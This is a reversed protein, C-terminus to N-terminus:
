FKTVTRLEFVEADTGSTYGSNDVQYYGATIGLGGFDYGIQYSRYDTNVTQGDKEQKGATVAVTIQDNVQYSIGYSTNTTDLNSATNVVRGVGATFGSASYMVGYGKGKTESNAVAASDAKKESMGVGIKLGEVGFNGHLAVDFGSGSAAGNASAAQADTASASPSYVGEITFASGKHILYVGNGGHVSEVDDVGGVGVLHIDQAVNPTFDEHSVNDAVGSVDNGIAFTTAGSTLKIFQDTQVGNEIAFGTSLDLGNKLKTSASLAVQAEYGITGVGANDTAGATTTTKTNYTTELYGSIKTEAFSSGAFLVSAALASGFMLKKMTKEQQLTM